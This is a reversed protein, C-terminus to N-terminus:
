ALMHLILLDFLLLYLQFSYASRNLSRVMKSIRVGQANRAQM